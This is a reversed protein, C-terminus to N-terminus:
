SQNLRQETRDLTAAINEHIVLDAFSDLQTPDRNVIVLSAGHQKAVVPLSAAPEVVLSSGLVIFLDAAKALTTAAQLVEPQLQQGFSITAHKLLGVECSPCPPVERSALFQRCYQDAVDRFECQMCQIYRATGHIEVVLQSGADQHLGDINQTIIGAVSQRAEWRALIQHGLNPQADGFEDFGESKQRWYERQSEVDQMFDNFMVPLVKSWKGGPSRFDPIGSDTSMGAGTFVVVTEAQQIMTALNSNDSM